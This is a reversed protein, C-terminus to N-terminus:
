LINISKDQRASRAPRLSDTRSGKVQPDDRNIVRNKKKNKIM